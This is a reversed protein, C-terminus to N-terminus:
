IEGSSIISVTNLLDGNEDGLSEIKKVIDLGEIVKGFAVYAGDLEPCPSSTIFFQAGNSDPGSNAMSVIGAEDHKIDFNEDEFVDGYISSRDTGGQIMVGPVVRHFVTGALSEVGNEGTCLSLFNFATQPVIDDYLMISIRGAYSHDISIELYVISRSHVLSRRLAANRVTDSNIEEPEQNNEQIRQLTFLVGLLLCLTIVLIIRQTIQYMM